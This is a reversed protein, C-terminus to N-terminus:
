SGLGPLAGTHSGSGTCSMTQFGLDPLLTCQIGQDPLAVLKEKCTPFAMSQAGQELAVTLLMM